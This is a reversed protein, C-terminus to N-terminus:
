GKRFERFEGDISSRREEGFRGEKDYVGTDSGHKTKHINKINVRFFPDPM